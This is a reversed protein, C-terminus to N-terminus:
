SATVVARLLAFGRGPASAVVPRKTARRTLRDLPEGVVGDGDDEVPIHRERRTLVQGEPSEHIALLM